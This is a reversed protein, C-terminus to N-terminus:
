IAIGFPHRSRDKGWIHPLFLDGFVSPISSPCKEALNLLGFHHLERWFIRGIGWQNHFRHCHTKHTNIYKNIYIFISLYFFHSLLFHTKQENITFQYKSNHRIPSPYKIRFCLRNYWNDSDEDKIIFVLNFCQNLSYWCLYRIFHEM